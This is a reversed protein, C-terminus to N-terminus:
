LNRAGNNISRQLGAIRRRISKLERDLSGYLEDAIYHLDRALLLQYEVEKCSGSAIDLFRNFEVQGGRGCGEAINWGISAASRRLQSTLGFLEHKPFISTASYIALTLDHAAQWVELNKFDKM